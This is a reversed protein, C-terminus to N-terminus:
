KNPTIMASSSELVYRIIFIASSFQSFTDFAYHWDRTIMARRTKVTYKNSFTPYKELALPRLTDSRGKVRPGREIFTGGKAGAAQKDTM